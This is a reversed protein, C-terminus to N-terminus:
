WGPPCVSSGLQIVTARYGTFDEWAEKGTKEPCFGLRFGQMLLVYMPPTTWWVTLTEGLPTSPHEGGGVKGPSNDKSTTM